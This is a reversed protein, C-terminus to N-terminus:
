SGKTSIVHYTSRIHPAPPHVLARKHSLSVQFDTASSFTDLFSTIRDLRTDGTTIRPHALRSTTSSIVSLTDTHALGAAAPAEVRPLELLSLYICARVSPVSSGIGHGWAFRSLICSSITRQLPHARQRQPREDVIPVDLLPSLGSGPINYDSTVGLRRTSYSLGSCM